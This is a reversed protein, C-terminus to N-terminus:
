QLACMRSTPHGLYGEEENSWLQSRRSSSPKCLVNLHGQCQSLPTESERRKGRYVRSALHGDLLSLYIRVRSTAASSCDKCDKM